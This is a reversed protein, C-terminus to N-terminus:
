SLLADQLKNRCSQGTGNQETGPCQRTLRSQMAGRKRQKWYKAIVLIYAIFVM